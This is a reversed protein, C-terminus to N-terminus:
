GAHHFGSVPACGVRGNRLAERAASLMAGTTCPLSEAVSALTNGFGNRRKGDLVGNVFDADHALAVQERTVPDVERIELPLGATQWDRIDLVPKGASSSYSGADAVMADSFFVRIKPPNHHSSHM